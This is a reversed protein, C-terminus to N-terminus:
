GLGSARCVLIRILGQGIRLTGGVQLYDRLDGVGVTLAPLADTELAGLAAIPLRWTREHLLEVAPVNGMQSGWGKDHGQGILDHFGNQLAEGGSAPGVVGLSLMLVSRNTDTDSILSGNIALYGAYPRDHPDAPVASTNAPTYIQQSVDLSVRQLGDGWLSHGLTALVSPVQGTPSTWGLRLGNTYFRDTLGPSASIAANEGQLTIIMAPDPPPEARVAIIPSLMAAALTLTKWHRM